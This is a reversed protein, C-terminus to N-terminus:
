SNKEAVEIVHRDPDYIRLTRRGMGDESLSNLFEVQFSSYELKQLFIDLNNEEFYLLMTHSPKEIKQGIAEEWSKKDQLVLGETLIVNTGFDTVVRLGFLEKYFAKSREIDDVVIM